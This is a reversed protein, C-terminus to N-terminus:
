FCTTRCEDTPLLGVANPPEKHSLGTPAVWGLSSLVMAPASWKGAQDRSRAAPDGRGRIREIRERAIKAMVTIKLGNVSVYHPRYPFGPLDEFREDPTRVVEPLVQSARQGYARADCIRSGGDM